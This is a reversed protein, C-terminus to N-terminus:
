LKHKFTYSLNVHGFMVGKLILVKLITIKLFDLLRLDRIKLVKKKKFFPM